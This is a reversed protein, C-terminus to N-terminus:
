AYASIITAFTKKDKMPLSPTQDARHDYENMPSCEEEWVMDKSAGIKKYWIRKRQLRRKAPTGIRRLMSTIEYEKVHREKERERRLDLCVTTDPSVQKITPSYQYLPPLLIIAHLPPRSPAAICMHNEIPFHLIAAFSLLCVSPETCLAPLRFLYVLFYLHQYCIRDTLFM